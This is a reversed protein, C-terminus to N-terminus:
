SAVLAGALFIAAVSVVPALIARAQVHLWCWAAWLTAGGWVLAVLPRVLGGLGEGGPLALLPIILLLQALVAVTCVAYSALNGVVGGWRIPGDRPWDEPRRRDNPGTM